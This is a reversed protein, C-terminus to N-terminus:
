NTAREPNRVVARGPACWEGAQGGLRVADLGSRQITITQGIGCDFAELDGSDDVRGNGIDAVGFASDDVLDGDFGADGDGARATATLLNLEHVSRGVNAVREGNGLGACGPVDGERAQCGIGVADLAFCQVASAYRIRRCFAEGHRLQQSRLDRIHPGGRARFYRVAAYGVLDVDGQETRGRFGLTDLDEIFASGFAGGVDVAAAVPADM